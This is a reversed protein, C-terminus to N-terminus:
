IYIDTIEVFCEFDGNIGISSLSKEKEREILINNIFVNKIKRCCMVEISNILQKTSNLKGITLILRLNKDKKSKIIANVNKGFKWHNNLSTRINITLIQDFIVENIKRTDNKPNLGIIYASKSNLSLKSFVAKEMESVTINIPLLIQRFHGSSIKFGKQIKEEKEYKKMLNNYYSVDPYDVDEIINIISNEPIGEISSDDNKLLYNNFSLIIDSFYDIQYKKAISYLDSKSISNPVKVKIYNGTLYTKINSLKLIKKPEKIYPLVDEIYDASQINPNIQNLNNLNLNYNIDNYNPYNPNNANQNNMMNIFAMNMNINNNGLFPNFKMNNNMNMTTNYNYNLLPNNIMNNNINM